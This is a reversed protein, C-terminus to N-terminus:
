GDREQLSSEEDCTDSNSITYICHGGPIRARILRREQLVKNVEVNGHHCRIIRQHRVGVLLVVQGRLEPLPGNQIDAQTHAGPIITHHLVVQKSVRQDIPPASSTESGKTQQEAPVEQPPLSAVPFQARSFNVVNVVRSKVRDDAPDQVIQWEDDHSAHGVDVMVVRGEVIGNEGKAEENVPDSPTQIGLHGSHHVRNQVQDSDAEENVELCNHKSHFARVLLPGM